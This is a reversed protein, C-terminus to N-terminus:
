RSRPARRLTSAHVVLTLGEVAAVVVASGRDAGADCRARWLEGGVKVQGEPRCASVAIGPSGVLTEVGVLPRRRRSWWLMLGSESAEIAVGGAVAVFSWPSDLVFVALLVSVVLFAM